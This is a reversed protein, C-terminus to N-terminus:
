LNKLIENKIELAKMSYSDREEPTLRVCFKKTIVGDKMIYVNDAIRVAEDLNHTVFIVGMEKEKKIRLLEKQLMARTFYDLASFPEDMFILKPRSILMRALAVRHAMGGSLDSPFSAEYGTLAVLDIIDQTKQRDIQSIELGFNVNDWVNLWPMLRPEQFVFGAKLGDSFIVKGSTPSLLGAMIRLLVTKGVGSRGLIVSIEKEEFSANVGKLVLKEAGKVEAEFSKTLNEVIIQAM